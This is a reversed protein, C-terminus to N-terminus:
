LLYHESEDGSAPIRWRHGHHANNYKFSEYRPNQKILRCYTDIHAALFWVFLRLAVYQYISVLTVRGVQPVVV